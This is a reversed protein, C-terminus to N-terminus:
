QCAVPIPGGQFMYAVLYVLDAIDPVDSSSSGDVNAAPLCPPEPGSQFMYAVLYVLDTIDPGTGDNNIDGRLKCCTPYSITRLLPEGNEPAHLWENFDFRIWASNTIQTGAELGNRPKISYSVYGEGEPPTVNPALWISDFFWTIVGSYPDFDYTCVDSHSTPGFALTSWDLDSDLTDLILVYIAEATAEVKNEFQILYHLQQDGEIECLPGDGHPSATKDNPDMSGVVTDIITVQNNELDTEETSSVVSLTARLETGLAVSGDISCEVVFIIGAFPTPEVPGLVFLLDNGSLTYGTYEMGTAQYVLHADIVNVGLVNPPTFSLVCNEASMTGINTLELVYEFNFGRRATTNFGAVELDALPEDIYIYSPKSMQDTATGSHITLTVDYRGPASYLHQPAQDSSSGGDGFDWDWSDPSGESEDTFQVTTEVPGATPNASFDCKLLTGSGGSQAYVGKCVSSWGPFSGSYEISTTACVVYFGPNAYCHSVLSTASWQIPTGDGFDWYYEVSWGSQAEVLSQFEMAQYSGGFVFDNVGSMVPLSYSNSQSHQDYSATLTIDYHGASQYTHVPNVEHSSEGDGFDWDFTLTWNPDAPQSYNVFLITLPALGSHPISEFLVNGPDCADGINDGDSDIQDPNFDYSCNDCEDGVQDSDQDAQDPNFAYPCNDCADGVGDSDEDEQYPNYAEPCNDVDSCLGDSDNDHYLGECPDCEDGVGNSNADAQDPNAVDSCNDDCNTTSGGTCPNDYPDGSADGDSLVGDGDPDCADGIGDTNWDAQDPNWVSQCNDCADGHLDSDTDEQGPNEILVCNDCADGYGDSDSDSQDPNTLLPCNDCADGFEDTDNNSQDPNAVGPCNDVNDPIGDSDTDTLAECADGIGDSDSDNQDPNFQNPCNDVDACVLDADYDNNPDGPCYDCDDVFGDGDADDASLCEGITFCYPGQWDPEISGGSELEWMWGDDSGNWTCSDICITQGVYSDSIEVEAFFVLQDFGTPLGMGPWLNLGVLAITDSGAGDLSHDYVSIMQFMSAWNINTTDYRVPSWIVGDPSYIKFSNSCNTVIAGSSPTQYKLVFRVLDPNVTGPLTEGQVSELIVRYENTQSRASDCLAFVLILIAIRIKLSLVM